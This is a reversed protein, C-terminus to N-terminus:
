QEGNEDSMIRPKAANTKDLSDTLLVCIIWRSLGEDLFM